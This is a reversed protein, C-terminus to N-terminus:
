SHASRVPPKSGYQQRQYLVPTTAHTTRKNDGAVQVFVGTTINSPVVTGLNESSAIIDLALSTDVVEIDDYSCCHGFRNLMTVLCKSGTMHRVSMALGVHKPTKVRGHTTAYILDQAIALIHREDTANSATPASEDVKDPNSIMLCLFKYLDKPVSSKVERASIDEVDVPQFGISKSENKISSRLLISSVDNQGQSNSSEDESPAPMKSLNCTKKSASSIVDQLSISSSYALEPKSPGPLKQFVIEEQFSQQLRCKLRETQYSKTTKCGLSELIEQYSDLLTKMDLAVGAELQPKIGERMKQFAQTYIDEAGDVRFDSYRLNSKSVYQSRCQKHYKAEAAIVDVGSIKLLMVQDSRARAAEEIAKRSDFTSVNMLKLKNDGKLKEAPLIFM